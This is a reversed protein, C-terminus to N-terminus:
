GILEVIIAGAGGFTAGCGGGVGAVGNLSGGGGIGAGSGLTGASWQGQGGGYGAALPPVQTGSAPMGCGGLGPVLGLGFGDVGGNGGFYPGGDQVWGGGSGNVVGKGGNGFRHGSAGGGGSAPGSGGSTNIAGGSGVGPTGGTSSGGTSSIVANFSSTGGASTGPVGPAGVTYSYSTGATLTPYFESYGGGDKSGAGVAAVRYKGTITPIFNRTGPATDFLLITSKMSGAGAVTTLGPGASNPGALFNSIYM